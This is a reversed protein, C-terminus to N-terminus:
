SLKTIYFNIWESKMLERSMLDLLMTMPHDLRSWVININRDFGEATFEEGEGIGAITRAFAIRMIMELESAEKESPTKTDMDIMVEDWKTIIVKFKSM